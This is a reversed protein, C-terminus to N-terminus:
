VKEARTRSNNVATKKNKRGQIKDLTEISIWEKHHHNNRDFVDQCTSNLAQEIGKWNNETNTEERLLDYLAQFMM